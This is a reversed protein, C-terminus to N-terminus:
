ECNIGYRGCQYANNKRKLLLEKERDRLGQEYAEQIPDLRRYHPYRQPITVQQQHQNDHHRKHLQQFLLTGAIGYAFSKERDSLGASATVPITSLLLILLIKM